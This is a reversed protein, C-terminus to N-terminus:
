RGVTGSLVGERIRRAKDGVDPIEEIMYNVSEAFRLPGQLTLERGDRRVVYVIPTGEPESSYRRRFRAGFNADRVDIEGVRVLLDGQQIGAEAASTGTSVDAVRIGEESSQTFIGIQPARTTDARVHLGALPLVEDYPLPERGDVYREAFEIFSTGGTHEAVAQWFDDSTFGIGAKYTSQYLSRLVEDLSAENDTADRILIDLLLGVISGKPYYVYRSGDVPDIWTSLSADELAVTPGDAVNTVKDATILYFLQPPVIGGRVLALDAYYDTIGESMWLLTTPQPRSYDYPVMEAPRLRKVNWAHFIEHATISALLPNGVAQTTYIGVHSNQHELASGGPYEPDFILLTVYREWPTEGFVATMPALMAELWNWFQRRADGSMTGVPYTALVYRRGDIDMSDVEIAGVFTPMDVLDHFNAATYTNPGDGATMGTAVTWASRTSVTVQSAFDLRGEPYLFVNTGNFLLFDDRSWAMANDLTDAAYTFAVTVEPAGAPRVRWTDYDLKDWELPRGASTVTFDQVKRAFNSIEYAGPTWAPLSLLVPEGGSARFTMQVAVSREAALTSDFRVEYHVDSIPASRPSEASQGLALAPSCLMSITTISRCLSGAM